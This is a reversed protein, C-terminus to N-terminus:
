NVVSLMLVSPIVINLINVSVLIVDLLYLILTFGEAYCCETELAIISCTSKSITM